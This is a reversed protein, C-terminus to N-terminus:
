LDYVVIMLWWLFWNLQVIVAILSDVVNVAAIM